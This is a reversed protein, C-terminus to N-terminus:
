LNEKENLIQEIIENPIEDAIKGCHQCELEKKENLFLNSSCEECLMETEDEETSKIFTFSPSLSNLLVVQLFVIVALFNYGCIVLYGSVITFVFSLIIIKYDFVFYIERM